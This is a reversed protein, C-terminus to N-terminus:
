ENDKNSAKPEDTKKYVSSVVKNSYATVANAFKDFEEQNLKRTAQKEILSMTSLAQMLVVRVATAFNMLSAVDPKAPFLLLANNLIQELSSKIWKSM